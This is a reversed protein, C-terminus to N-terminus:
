GFNTSAILLLLPQTGCTLHNGHMILVLPRRTANETSYIVARLEPQLHFAVHLKKSVNVERETWCTADDSGLKCHPLKSEMTSFQQHRVKVCINKLYLPLSENNCAINYYSAKM